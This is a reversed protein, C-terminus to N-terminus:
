AEKRQRPKGVPVAIGAGLPLGNPPKEMGYTKLNALSTQFEALKEKWRPAKPHGPHAKLNAKLKKVNPLIRDVRGVIRAAKLDTPDAEHMKRAAAIIDTM